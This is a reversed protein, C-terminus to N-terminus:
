AAERIREWEHRLVGPDVLGEREIRAEFLRFRELADWALERVCPHSEGVRLCEEAHTAARGLNRHKLNVANIREACFREFRVQEERQAKAARVKTTLEPSPKFRELQLGARTALFEMSQRFSCRYLLEIFKFVDGGVQCGHCRFVGKGPHVSFSPTKDAHFPCRGIFQVGSRRLGVREGIVQEIPNVARIAEITEAPQTKIFVKM